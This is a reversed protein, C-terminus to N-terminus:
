SGTACHLLEPTVLEGATVQGSAVYSAITARQAELGLGSRGQKDISVRYYAIYTRSHKTVNILHGTM